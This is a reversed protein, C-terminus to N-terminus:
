RCCEGCCGHIAEADAFEKGRLREVRAMHDPDPHGVGHPCIREMLGRDARWHLPFDRMSHDSPNHIPCLGDCEDKEHVEVSFRDEKGYRFTETM